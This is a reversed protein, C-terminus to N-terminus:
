EMQQVATEGKDPNFQYDWFPLWQDENLCYAQGEKLNNIQELYLHGNNLITQKKEDLKIFEEEWSM